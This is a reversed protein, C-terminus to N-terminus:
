CSLRRTQRTMAMPTMPIDIDTGQYFVTTKDSVGDGNTDELILIRDGEPRKGRNGRYNVAECAWVRGRHDVDLNSISVIGPDSAFTKVQLGEAVTLKGLAQEPTLRDDQALSAAVSILLIAFASLPFILRKM